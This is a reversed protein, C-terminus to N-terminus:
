NYFRGSWHSLLVVSLGSIIFITPIMYLRDAYYLVTVSGKELWSAMIRDLVPNFGIAVAAIVQYGSTKLFELLKPTFQWFFNLKFIKFWYIIYALLLFRVVEGIVYGFAVAHVNIKNRFAFIFMLCVIARIAPFIAPFFFKKYTNLTGTLISTWALLVILPATELLLQYILNLSDSSFKTIFPLILRCTLIFLVSLILLGLGSVSLINGVFNGIDQNKSRLESIYPVIVNEVVTAFVGGMFLILGYVFFFADTVATVGYWAAIFFPILFGAAKGLTAWFTTTITDWILPRGRLKSWLNNFINSM